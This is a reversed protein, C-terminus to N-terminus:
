AGLRMILHEIMEDVVNIFRSSANYANQYKIMSTLEEDSSVGIVQQRQNDISAVTGKLTDATAGYVNGYTALEGIMSKYYGKFSCGKTDNPNLTLRNEDWVSALHEALSYDVTMNGITLHPLETERQILAENVQLSTLTYQMTSDSPDEENYLYITQLVGANDTFTAKTYRPTGIRTFLEQPPLEGSAGVCCNKEDLIKSTVDVTKITGDELTVDMTTAGPALNLVEKAEVNPALIDNIATVIGHIMQDLEAEAKLMVSMGTTDNFTTRDMGEVDRYTAIHDGRALIQAKLKGMDNKNEASIDTNFHFLYTYKGREVDSLHSWYPTAFGTLKDVQLELPYYRVEDVFETGEISVKVVGDVTESYSINVLASLEDLLQDRADRLTMATELKGAEIKQINLNLENIAKGIENIRDVDDRIQTNMNYQYSQLGSYVANARSLFLQAKQIVLNQNVSDDPAKSLEQFSVWFDELAGQFVQGEMEQFYTEVERTAEYTAQYFAQRGSETRYSRDLFIDRSHVVDGIKVGLGSQQHSIATTTNLTIYNRDEFLVQQRVYGATDVNAMNNATINLANQSSQLGAVGIFLTGFGNAM